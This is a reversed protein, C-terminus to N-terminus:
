VKLSLVQQQPSELLTLHLTMYLHVLTLIFVQAYPQYSYSSTGNYLWGPRKLTIIVTPPNGSYSIGYLTIKVETSPKESNYYEFKIQFRPPYSLCDELDKLAEKKDETVVGEECGM